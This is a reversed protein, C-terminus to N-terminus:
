FNDTVGDRLDPYEGMKPTSRSPNQDSDSIAENGNIEDQPIVNLLIDDEAPINFRWAEPFNTVEDDLGLYRVVPKKLRMVDGM